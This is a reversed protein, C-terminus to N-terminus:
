PATRSRVGASSDSLLVAADAAVVGGVGHARRRIGPRMWRRLQRTSMRRLVSFMDAVAPLPDMPDAVSFVLNGRLSALYAAPSLTGQRMEALAAPVDTVFRVWRAGYRPVVCPPAEGCVWRYQIAAFDLGSRECLGIWSWPRVNVDLLKYLGDRPDCKFEAEALGTLGSVQLVRSALATIEPVPVAEVFSSSLGFDIPYQRVRRATMLAAPAGNICFYAASVQGQAGGPLLEQVMLANMPVADSATQFQASLQEADHAVLAKRRLATQLGISIAPKVVVPYEITRALHQLERSDHPYWTLPTPVGASHALVHLLRKDHLRSLESWRPTVLRYFEALQDHHRAVVELVDDQMPFLMWDRMGRKVALQQLFSALVPDGMSGRWRYRSQVRRSYWAARPDSDVVACAVGLRALSRVVALAKFDSGVILAGRVAASM